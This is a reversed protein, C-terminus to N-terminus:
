RILSVHYRERLCFSRGQGANRCTRLVDHHRNIDQIQLRAEVDKFCVFVLM